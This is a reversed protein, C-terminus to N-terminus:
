HRRYKKMKAVSQSFDVHIRRDDILVNDMKLYAKECDDKDDFEIFGYQLSQDTKPDKVIQVAHIKGFRSFIRRLDEEETIPNLKCVFLVNEPPKADASPLDGIMELVVARSKAEKEELEAKIQEETKGDDEYLNECIGVRVSDILYNPIKPSSQKRLIRRIFSPDEFPDDIIITNSICIDQYPHEEKDVLQKNILELIDLGEVVEGFVTHGQKDLYDLNDSLTIIFQSGHKNNGDNIMSIQGKKTHKIIPIQEASFYKKDLSLDFSYISSGGKGTNDPDGTRFAYDKKIEFILCFKYYNIKCLKIFNYCAKSRYRTYLDITIDGLSTEVVVSM